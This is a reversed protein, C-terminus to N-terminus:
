FYRIRLLINCLASVWSFLLLTLDLIGFSCAACTTLHDSVQRLRMNNVISVASYTADPSACVRPSLGTAHIQREFISRILEGSKRWMAPSFTRRNLVDIDVSTSRSWNTLKAVEGITGRVGRAPSFSIVPHNLKFWVCMMIDHSLKRWPTDVCGVHTNTGYVATTSLRGQTRPPGGSRIEYTILRSAV